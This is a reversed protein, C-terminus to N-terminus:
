CRRLSLQRVQETADSPHSRRWNALYHTVQSRTPPPGDLDDMEIRHCILGYLQYSSATPNSTLSSSLLERMPLTLHPHPPSEAAPDSMLPWGQQHVVTTRGACCTNVKYRCMCVEDSDSM